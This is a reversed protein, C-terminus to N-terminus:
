PSKDQDRLICKGDLFSVIYPSQWPRPTPHQPLWYCIPPLEKWSLKLAEEQFFTTMLTQSGKRLLKEGHSSLLRTKSVEQWKHEPAKPWEKGRRGKPDKPEKIYLLSCSGNHNPPYCWPITMVEKRKLNLDKMIEKKSRVLFKSKKLFELRKLISM